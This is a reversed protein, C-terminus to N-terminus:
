QGSKQALLKLAILRDQATLYLTSEDTDLALNAVPRDVGIHALLEGTPSFLWVGGPGTAFVTGNSHQKLGDPLGVDARQFDLNNANAFLTQNSLQGKENVDYIYWAPAEPDSVAVILQKEDNLLQIGNPYKLTKDQLTLKGDRTLRYVGQFALEKAPDELQKELGYPPDTFYLSGDSARTVDNPSNLREGEFTAALPTYNPAPKDLAAEMKAVQRTRSQMLVLDGDENLILGNSYGSDALYTDVGNDPCYRMVRHSPIDSFLLCNQEELWLPGEVWTFGDALLVTQPERSIIELVSDDFITVSVDSPEFEQISTGGALVITSQALLCVMLLRKFSSYKM